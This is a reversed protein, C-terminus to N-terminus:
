ATGMKGPQRGSSGPMNFLYHRVARQALREDLMAENGYAACKLTWECATSSRFVAQLHNNVTKPTGSLIMRGDKSHSLTEQLVPLNGAAVDQFEDVLLLSASIGRCPDASHFAESFICGQAIRSRLITQSSRSKGQGLTAAAARPKAAGGSGTGTVSRKPRNKRPCVFLIESGPDMCAECIITNALFTSKEVQRSICIVLNGRQVNYINRLYPRGVFSIPQRNLQVYHRCFDFKGIM